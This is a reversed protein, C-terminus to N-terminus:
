LGNSSRPQYQAYLQMARAEDVLKFRSIHAQITRHEAAGQAYVSSDETMDYYWDHSKLLLEYERWTPEIDPAPTGVEHLDLLSPYVQAGESRRLQVLQHGLEPNVTSQLQSFREAWLRGALAVKEPSNGVSLCGRMTWGYEIFSAALMYGIGTATLYTPGYPCYTGLYNRITVEDVRASLRKYGGTVCHIVTRQDAPTHEQMWTYAASVVAAYTPLPDLKGVEQTFALYAGPPIVQSTTQVVAIAEVVVEPIERWQRLWDEITEAHESMEARGDLFVQIRLPPM